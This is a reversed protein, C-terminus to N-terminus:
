KYFSAFFHLVLYEIHSNFVDPFSFFLYLSCKYMFNHVFDNFTFIVGKLGQIQLWSRNGSCGQAGVLTRSTPGARWDARGLWGHTPQPNYPLYVIQKGTTKTKYGFSLGKHCRYAVSLNLLDGLFLAQLSMCTGLCYQSSVFRKGMESDIFQCSFVRYTFTFVKRSPGLCTDRAGAYNASFHQVVGGAGGRIHSPKAWPGLVESNEFCWGTAGGSLELSAWDQGLSSGIDPMRRTLRLDVQKRTENLSQESTKWNHFVMMWYFGPGTSAQMPGPVGFNIKIPPVLRAKQLKKPSPLGSKARSGGEPM